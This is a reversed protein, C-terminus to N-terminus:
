TNGGHNQSADETKSTPFHKRSPVKEGEAMHEWKAIQRYVTRIMDTSRHGMWRILIAEPVGQQACWTCFTRRCDVTMLHEVGAKEAARKLNRSWAVWHAEWNPAQLGFVPRNLPVNQLRRTMVEHADANLPVTREEPEGDDDPTKTAIILCTRSQLDVHHPEIRYLEGRRIGTACYLVFHDRWSPAIAALVRLYEAWPMWRKRKKSFEHPLEPPWLSAPDREYKSHQKLYRLAATFTAMEMAITGDSVDRERRHEVYNTTDELVISYINRQGKDFFKCFAGAKDELKSITGDARGARVKMGIYMEFLAVLALCHSQTAAEQHLREAVAKAEARKACKTGREVDPEGPIHIIVTYFQRGKRPKKLTYSM